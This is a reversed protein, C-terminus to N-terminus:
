GAEEIAEGQARWKGPCGRRTGMAAFLGVLRPIVGQPAAALEVACFGPLTQQVFGPVYVTVSVAVLALPELVEVVTIVTLAFGVTVLVGADAVIQEPLLVPKVALPAVVYVQPGAVPSLAVVPALTVAFGM